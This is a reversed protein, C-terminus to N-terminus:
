RKRRARRALPDGPHADGTPEVPAPVPLRLAKTRDQDDAVPLRLLQTRDGDISDPLRIAQTRDDGEDAVPTAVTPEEDSSAAPAAPAAPAASGDPAAETVDEDPTDVVDVTRDDAGAPSAVM